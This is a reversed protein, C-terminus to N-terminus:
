AVAATVLLRAEGIYIDRFINFKGKLMVGSLMIVGLVVTFMINYQHSGHLGNHQTTQNRSRGRSILALHQRTFM